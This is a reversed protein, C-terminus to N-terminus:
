ISIYTYVKTMMRWRRLIAFEECNKYDQYFLLALDPVIKQHIIRIIITNMYIKIMLYHPAYDARQMDYTLMCIWGFVCIYVCTCMYKHVELAEDEYRGTCQRRDQDILRELEERYIYM